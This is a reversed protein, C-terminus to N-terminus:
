RSSPKTHTELGGGGRGECIIYAACARLNFRCRARPSSASASNDRVCLHSLSVASDGWVACFPMHPTCAHTAHSASKSPGGGEGGGEGACEGMRLTYVSPARVRELHFLM